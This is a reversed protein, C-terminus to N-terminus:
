FLTIDENSRSQSEGRDSGEVEHEHEGESETTEEVENEEDREKEGQANHMHKMYEDQKYEGPLLTGRLTELRYSNHLWETVQHPQSWKPILKHDTKFTYDTDSWYIQILHGKEFVVEGPHWQLIHKDFAAKCKIAHQIAKDFGDLHQQAIYAM